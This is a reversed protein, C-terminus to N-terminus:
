HVTKNGRSLLIMTNKCLTKNNNYDKNSVSLGSNFL